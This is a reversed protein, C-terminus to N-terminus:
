IHILSLSLGLNINLKIKGKLSQAKRAAQSRKILQLGYILTETIGKDTMQSAERLLEAPLNATIRRIENMDYYQCMYM